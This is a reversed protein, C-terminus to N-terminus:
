RIPIDTDKKNTITPTIKVFIDYKENEFVLRYDTSLKKFESSAHNYYHKNIVVTNYNMVKPIHQFGQVNGEFFAKQTFYQDQNYSWAYLPNLGFLFRYDPIRFTFYPYDAWSLFIKEGKAINFRIWETVIFGYKTESSRFQQGMKGYAIPFQIVFLMIGILLQFKHPIKINLFIFIFFMLWSMEFIRMSAGAFVLCLIGLFLFVFSQPHFNNYIKDRFVLLLLPLMPLFGLILIDRTPPLWEAIAEVGPPPFSQIVLEIFYGKFQFPFSPHIVLGFIIGIVSTLFIKRQEKNNQLILIFLGTFFLFPFGSYSWVSLFSLFFIWKLHKINWIRLIAFYLTFFLLNGRGFLMRGTFLVSGLIFFIVILYPSVNPSETNLYKTVQYLLNTISILIFIKISITEEIPLLLFPIQILHFLFHYDTFEQSQIGIDPWPLRSVFGEKLYLKAVAFHYFIDADPVGAFAFLLIGYLTFGLLIANRFTQM